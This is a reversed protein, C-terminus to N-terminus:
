GRGRPDRRGEISTDPDLPNVVPNVSAPVGSAETNDNGPMDTGLNGGDACHLTGGAKGPVFEITDGGNIHDHNGVPGDFINGNTRRYVAGEPTATCTQSTRLPREPLM